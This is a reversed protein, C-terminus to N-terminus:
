SPYTRRTVEAAGSRFVHVSLPDFNCTGAAYSNFIHCERKQACKTRMIYANQRLARDELLGSFVSPILGSRDPGPMDRLIPINRTKKRVTM